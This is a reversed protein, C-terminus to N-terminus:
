RLVGILLGVIIAATVTLLYAGSNRTKEAKVVACDTDAWTWLRRGLETKEIAHHVVFGLFVGLPVLGLAVVLRVAILRGQLAGEWLPSEAPVVRGALWGLLALVGAVLIAAGAAATIIWKRRQEPTLNRATEFINM